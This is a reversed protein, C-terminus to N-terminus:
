LKLYVEGKPTVTKIWMNDRHLVKGTKLDVWKKNDKIESIMGTRDDPTLIRNHFVSLDSLEMARGRVNMSRSTPKISDIKIPIDDIRPSHPFICVASVGQCTLKDLFLDGYGTERERNRTWIALLSCNICLQVMM